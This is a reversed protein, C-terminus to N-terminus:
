DELFAVRATQNLNVSYGSSLVTDKKCVLLNLFEHNFICPTGSVVSGPMEKIIKGSSLINCRFTFRGSRMTYSIHRCWLVHQFHGGNADLCSQVRRAMHRTRYRTPCGTNFQIIM